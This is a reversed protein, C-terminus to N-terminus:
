DKSVERQDYHTHGCDPCAHRSAGKNRSRARRQREAASLPAKPTVPVDNVLPTAIDQDTAGGQTDAHEWLGPLDDDTVNPTVHSASDQKSDEPTPTYSGQM